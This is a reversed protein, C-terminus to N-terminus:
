GYIGIVSFARQEDRRLYVLNSSSVPSPDKCAVTVNAADNAGLLLGDQAIVGGLLKQTMPPIDFLKDRDCIDWSLNVRRSAHRINTAGRVARRRLGGRRSRRGVRSAAIM